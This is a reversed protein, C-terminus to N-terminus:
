ESAELTLTQQVLPTLDHSTEFLVRRRDTNRIIWIDSGAENVVTIDQQAVRASSTAESTRLITEQQSILSENCTAFIRQGDLSFELEDSATTRQTMTSPVLFTIGCTDSTYSPFSVPQPMDPTTTPSIEPTPTPPVYSNDIGQIYKGLNLGIFFVVILTLSGLLIRSRKTHRM